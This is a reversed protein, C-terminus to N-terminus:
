ARRRMAWQVLTRRKHVSHLIRTIFEIHPALLATFGFTENIKCFKFLRRFLCKWSTIKMQDEISHQTQIHILRKLSITIESLPDSFACIKIFRGISMRKPECLTAWKLVFIHKRSDLADISVSLHLTCIIRWNRGEATNFSIMWM